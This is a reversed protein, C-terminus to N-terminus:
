KIDEMLSKILDRSPAEPLAKASIREYRVAYNMVDAPSSVLRGGGPSESFAVEGFNPGGMLQFSGDLGLHAGVNWSRPVVRIVADPLESLDLLHQLQARMIEPSGVPWELCAQSLLAATYPPPQRNFVAQRALRKQVAEEPNPPNGENIVARAYDETQFLGHILQSAFIRIIDARQELALYQAFWQPDHGISAYWVLLSFLRGANWAKDLLAAQTGDLREAGIEIRSVESKSGRIIRGVAEGSLGRQTRQFRLYYAIFDWM